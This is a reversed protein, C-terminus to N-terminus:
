QESLNALIQPSKAHKKCYLKHSRQGPRICKVHVEVSASWIPRSLDIAKLFVILVFYFTHVATEYDVVADVCPYKSMVLCCVVVWGM